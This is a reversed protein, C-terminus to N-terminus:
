SNKKEFLSYAFCKRSQVHKRDKHMNGVWQDPGAHTGSILIHMYKIWKNYYWWLMPGHQLLPPVYATDFLSATSCDVPKNPKTPLKRPFGLVRPSAVIQSGNSPM